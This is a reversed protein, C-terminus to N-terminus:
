RASLTVAAAMPPSIAKPKNPDEHDWYGKDVFIREATIGAWAEMAEIVTKLTHGDYPNGM